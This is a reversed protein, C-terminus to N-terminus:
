DISNFIATILETKNKAKKTDIGKLNAFDRLKSLTMKEIEEKTEDTKEKKIEIAYGTNLIEKAREAPFVLEDGIKYKVGTNKDKCERLFKIKM